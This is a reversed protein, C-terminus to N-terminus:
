PNRTRIDVLFPRITSFRRRVFPRFRSVTESSPYRRGLRRHRLVKAPLFPDAATGVELLRVIAACPQLSPEHREEHHGIPPMSRTESNRGGPLQSGGDDPAAGLAQGALQETAVLRGRAEIDDNNRAPFHKIRREGTKLGVVGIRESKASPWM